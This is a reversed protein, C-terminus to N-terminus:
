AATDRFQLENLRAYLGGRGILEAHTGEDHIRGAEMVVIKHADRITALRHAIVLTTRGQSLRELAQQVLAESAADLASTAEDLLLIPTDRLLARAIAIRQRQGGSLNSGRPGAPSDLGEPLQGLFDAVHAAELVEDLRAASVDRRGLLINERVTEDFLLADQTVVSILGRLDPLALSRTPVGGVSVEGRDPDALRTLLNFVTSKGAGSPGVLATTEGARATFSVDYLVPMTEYAFSVNELRITSDARPVAVPRAPSLITPRTDLLWYLRELSAAATQLTGAVGGLRRLPQFALAM